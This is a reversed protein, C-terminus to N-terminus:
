RAEPFARVRLERQGIIFAKIVDREGDLRRNDRGSSRTAHQDLRRSSLLHFLLHAENNKEV